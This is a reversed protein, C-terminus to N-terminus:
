APKPEGNMKCFFWGEDLKIPIKDKMVWTPKDIGNCMCRKGKQAKRCNESHQEPDSFIYKSHRTYHSRGIWFGPYNVLKMSYIQHDDVGNTVWIVGEKSKRIKNCTEESRKEGKRNKMKESFEPPKKKGKLNSSISDKTEQKHHYGLVGDGGDTQNYGYKKGYRNINSKYYAIYYTEWYNLAENIENEDKGELYSLDHIIEFDFGDYGYKRLANYFYGNFNTKALHRHKGKRGDINVSKGIYVKGNKKNTFKYIGIM